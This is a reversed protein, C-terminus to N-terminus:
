DNPHLRVQSIMARPLAIVEEESQLYLYDQNHDHLVGIMKRPGAFTRLMNVKVTGGQYRKLDKDKKLVRDIGPSSVELHDYYLDAADILAKIARSAETCLELTVESEQDIFVRLVQEGHEKRYQVDVTEIGMQDLKSELQPQIKILDEKSM